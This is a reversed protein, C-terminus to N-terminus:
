SFYIFGQRPSKNAEGTLYPLLNNGANGRATLPQRLVRRLRPRDAPVREPRRPPEQRVSRDRLRAAEPARRDDSGRGAPRDAGGPRRGQEARHPLREPRHHLLLAGGHLEARRVLGHVADRRRRDPRHQANPLGDVRRQLLQPQHDRHRRGLDRSHEAERCAHVSGTRRNAVGQRVFPREARTRYADGRRPSIERPRIRRFRPTFRLFTASIPPITAPTAGIPKPIATMTSAILPREVTLLESLSSFITSLRVHCRRRVLGLDLLSPELVDVQR